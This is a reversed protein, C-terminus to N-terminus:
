KVMKQLALLEDARLHRTKGTALNGLEINAM